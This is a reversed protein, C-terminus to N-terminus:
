KCQQMSFYYHIGLFKSPHIIPESENFGKFQIKVNKDERTILLLRNLERAHITPLDSMDSM